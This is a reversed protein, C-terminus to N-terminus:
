LNKGFYERIVESDDFHITRDKFIQYNEHGKGAIVVVDGPKAMGLAMFIARKRDAEKKYERGEPIGKEIESIIFEPDETRPNDSTIIAVDAKDSAIRGMIPRKTRDRDGGCGFVAIVRGEAITRATGLVNDLGDPTHAYDVVAAFDQGCRVTEFRGKVGGFDRLAEASDEVPVGLALCAGIAAMSNHVNFNGSVGLEVRTTKGGFSLSYSLGDRGVKADSASLDGKGTGYTTCADRGAVDIMRQGYPDDVNIIARGTGPKLSRFLRAKAEFYDEFTGHFDLHDRTLNTFVAADFAIGHVRYLSLSHSSVEFVASKVGCDAMDRLTKQLTKADPTTVSSTTQKGDYRTMLTGILGSKVGARTMVHDIMFTTTTKGNTGTVGTVKMEEAPRGYFAAAAEAYARRTDASVITGDAGAPERGPSTCFARAGNELAKGIFNHGDTKLGKICFFLSGKCAERSDCTISTIESEGDGMLSAGEIAEAIKKLKM